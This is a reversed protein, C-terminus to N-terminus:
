AHHRGKHERQHNEDGVEAPLALPPVRLHKSRRSLPKTVVLAVLEDLQGSDSM